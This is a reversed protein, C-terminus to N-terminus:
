NPTILVTERETFEVIFVEIAVENKKTIKHYLLHMTEFRIKWKQMYILLLYHEWYSYIPKLNAPFKNTWYM